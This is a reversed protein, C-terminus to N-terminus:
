SCHFVHVEVKRSQHRTDLWKWGTGPLDKDRRSRVASIAWQFDLEDPTGPAHRRARHAIASCGIPKCNSKHFSPFTGRQCDRFGIQVILHGIVKHEVTVRPISPHLHECFEWHEHKRGIDRFSGNRVGRHGRKAGGGLWQWGVKWSM